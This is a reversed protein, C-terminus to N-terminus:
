SIGRKAKAKRFADPDFPKDDDDMIKRKGTEGGKFDSSKIVVKDESQEKGAAKELEAIYDQQDQSHLFLKTFLGTPVIQSMGKQNLMMNVPEFLKHAKLNKEDAFQPFFNDEVQKIAQMAQATRAKYNAAVNNLAATQQNVFASAEGIKKILFAESQPNAEVTQERISGDQMREKYTWSAEGARLKAFEGEWYGLEGKVAQVAGVGQEWQPDLMYAKDHLYYSDPLEGEKRVPAVVKKAEEIAKDKKNFQSLVWQRAERAMKKAFPLSEEDFKALEEEETLAIKKTLDKREIKLPKLTPKEEEEDVEKAVEETDDDTKTVKTSDEEEDEVKPKETIKKPSKELAKQQEEMEEALLRANVEEQPDRVGDALDKMKKSDLRINEDPEKQIEAPINARQKVSEFMKPDFASSKPTTPEIPPLKVEKIGDAM